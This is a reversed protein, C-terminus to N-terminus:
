WYRGIRSPRSTAVQDGRRRGFYARRCALMHASYAIYRSLLKPAERDGSATTDENVDHLGYTSTPPREPYLIKRLRRFCRRKIGQRSDTEDNAKLLCHSVMFVVKLRRSPSSSFFPSSFPGRFFSSCPCGYLVGPLLCPQRVWACSTCSWASSAPFRGRARSWSGDRPHRREACQEWSRCRCRARQALLLARM